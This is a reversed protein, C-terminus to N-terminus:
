GLPSEVRFRWRMALPHERVSHGDRAGGPNRTPDETKVRETQGRFGGYSTRHAVLEIDTGEYGVVTISGSINDVVIKRSDGGAPFQLTKRIEDKESKEYRDLGDGLSLAAALVVLLTNM